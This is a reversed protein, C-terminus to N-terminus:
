QVLFKVTVFGGEATARLFYLGKALNSVNFAQHESFTVGLSSVFRGQADLIDLEIGRGSHDLNQVQLLGNAVPNELVRILQRNSDNKDTVASSEVGKRMGNGFSAVWMEGPVHPNFCIREVHGFPYAEVSVWEPMAASKNHTVWIGQTETTLYMTESDQPDVTVSSVRHFQDDATIPSWTLGRDTTRFLRGLDNAPGGWGSWVCAYWTNQSIDTPDIVLDKTWFRMDPHNRKTWTQGGNLSVFVGSSDSFTSGSNSKRACWTSVLTGDNLCHINFIRGRNAPPNPLKTWVATAPNSIGNAVWIGGIAPDLSIVGAYLRDANAPDTTVWIVPNDFDRMITWDKGKNSSYLVQGDKYSPALRQDTIYTTQYIDHVSSNAGFWLPMTNHKVIRYMTNLAHGTYDFSWSVGGDNSRVGKIDTFCGFMEDEDFWYVQWCTTQEMGVGRYYRKKPTAAGAPNEDEPNLYAQHWTSGGNLTQHIFGFDTLVAHQSNRQNVAFGLAFGGWSYGLDGGFGQYGTYINQNNQRLYIHQWSNGGDSTKMVIAEEFPTSGALYCTNPDNDAMALFVAFDQNIDIGNMAPTWVGSQNDMKYVGRITEWYNYGMTTAWVNGADGTLAFFRTLNGSRAGGFGIIKEGAPIGSFNAVSFSQGGDHSVLVGDNTGLWIDNGNFYAGSLLIGAGSNSATYKLNSTNGGDLSVFLHNYDTWLVRNPQDYDAFIFLKDEGPDQDAPLFNWTAGNDLSKAPRTSFNVGDALLAYRINPSSTFCVKSYSNTAAQTFHVVDYFQGGNLTYYLAGLDSAFTMVQDNAPHIAPSFLAGGGGIGRTVFSTPQCITLDTCVVLGASFLLFRIPNM